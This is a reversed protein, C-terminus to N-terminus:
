VAREEDSIEITTSDTEFTEKLAHVVLRVDDPEGKIIFEHSFWGGSEMWEIRFGKFQASTLCDRVSRWLLRGATFERTYPRTQVWERRM